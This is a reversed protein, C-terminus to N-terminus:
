KNQPNVIVTSTTSSKMTQTQKGDSLSETQTTKVSVNQNKIWGTNQDVLVTGNQSLESSISHTMGQQSKKDSKKPIGGSVTVTMLGNDVSKLTYTTTLKVSADPTANETETWSQGIKAGTKPLIMLNKTFQEKISNQNFSQKFSNVFASKQKADKIQVSAATGIKAYVPEFGSISVVEGNEKMKMQLKNGVLAKNMTWMMKLNADAPAASKTDVSVTKGNATQSNSKGLLNISIDYVGDKFDNVTFSMEDTSNSTGSVSKGDPGTMTQVNRQYTTLPYTAGKELKFTQTYVGNVEKIAPNAALVATQTNASDSVPVEVTVKEGTKPDTKTITKTDKKCAVVALSLIALAALKKM